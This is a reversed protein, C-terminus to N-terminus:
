QTVMLRYGVGQESQIFRPADPDDGLKARLQGIYVRLYQVDDQHANGWVAQLLQRHTCIRGAARALTLLLDFEKKSLHVERQAVHVTHAAVDVHLEGVQLSSQAPNMRLCSRIRALLEPTSFPKQVYDHAGADLAQVKDDDAHRVSLVIVPPGSRARLRRIVEHGCIDPLGLDLLVLDPAQKECMSLADAGNAAQMPAYGAARLTITLFRRIQEEDDVVLIRHQPATPVATM